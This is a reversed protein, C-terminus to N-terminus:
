IDRSFWVSYYKKWKSPDNGTSVIADTLKWANNVYQFLATKINEGNIVLNECVITRQSIGSILHAAIKYSPCISVLILSIVSCLAIFLRGVTHCGHRSLRNYRCGEVFFQDLAFALEETLVTQVCLFAGDKCRAEVKVSSHVACTVMLIIGLIGDKGSVASVCEAGAELALSSHSLWLVKCEVM